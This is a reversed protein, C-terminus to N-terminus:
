KTIINHLFKGCGLNNAVTMWEIGIDNRKSLHYKLLLEGIFERYGEEYYKDLNTYVNSYYTM